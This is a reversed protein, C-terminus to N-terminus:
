VLIGLTAAKMKRADSLTTQRNYVSKVTGTSSVSSRRASRQRVPGGHQRGGNVPQEDAEDMSASAGM